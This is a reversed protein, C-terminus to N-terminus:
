KQKVIFYFEIENLFDDSINEPCPSFDFHRIDLEKTYKFSHASKYEQPGHIIRKSSKFSLGSLGNKLSEISELKKISLGIVPAVEFFKEKLEPTNNFSFIAYPLNLKSLDQAFKIDSDNDVVYIIELIRTRAEQLLNMNIPKNTVVSAKTKELVGMLFMEDFRYDMRVCVNFVHGSLEVPKSTDPILEIIDHKPRYKAGLHITEYPPSWSIGLLDMINQAIEEPKINKVFSQSEELSFSPKKNPGTSFLVREKEPSGWYPKTTGPFTNSFLIVRPIDYHGALDFIYDDEGFHLLSHKIFYAHQGFTLNDLVCIETDANDPTAHVQIISIGRKDLEPKILNIVELYYPYFKKNFSIFKECPVSTYHEYVYPKDIKLGCFLSYTELLHM